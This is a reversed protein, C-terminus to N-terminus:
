LPLEKQNPDPVPCNCKSGHEENEPHWAGGCTICWKAAVNIMIYQRDKQHLLTLMGVCGHTLAVMTRCKEAKIEEPTKQRKLHVKFLWGLGFGIWLALLPLFPTM